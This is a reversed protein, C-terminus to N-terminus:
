ASGPCPWGARAGPLRICVTPGHVSRSLIWRLRSLFPSRVSRALHEAVRRTARTISAPAVAQPQCGVHPNRPVGAACHVARGYRHHPRPVRLAFHRPLQGSWLRRALLRARRPSSATLTARVAHGLAPHPRARPAALAAPPRTRRSHAALGRAARCLHGQGPDCLPRYCHRRPVRDAGDARLALRARGGVPTHHARRDAM